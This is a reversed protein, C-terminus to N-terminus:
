IDNLIREEGLCKAGQAICFDSYAYDLTANVSEPYDNPVYGLAQYATVGQRGYRIDSSELTASKIM